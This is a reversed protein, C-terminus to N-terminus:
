MDVSTTIEIEEEQSSFWCIGSTVNDASGWDASVVVANAVSCVTSAVFFISHTRPCAEVPQLKGGVGEFLRLSQLINRSRQLSYMVEM